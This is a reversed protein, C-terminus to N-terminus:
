YNPKHTKFIVGKKDLGGLERIIDINQYKTSEVWIKIICFNKKPSITAGTITKLFSKNTSVSEGALAYCLNKWGRYVDKNHVKYSFCGGKSNRPDEWIPKVGDRMFFLMCNKVMIEPLTQILAILEEMYNIRLIPKYSDLSWDTDHPMHAYMMWESKLPHYELDNNNNISNDNINNINNIPHSLTSGSGSGSGSISTSVPASENSHYKKIDYSSSSSSSYKNNKMFMSKKNKLKKSLFSNSDM